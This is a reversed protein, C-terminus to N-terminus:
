KRWFFSTIYLTLLWYTGKFLQKKFNLISKTLWVKLFLCFTVYVRLTFIGVLLVSWFIGHTYEHKDFLLFNLVQDTYNEVDRQYNLINKPDRVFFRLSTCMNWKALSTPFIQLYEKQPFLLKIKILSNLYPWVQFM